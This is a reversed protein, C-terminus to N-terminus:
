FNYISHFKCTDQKKNIKEVKGGGPEKTMKASILKKLLKRRKLIVKLNSMQQNLEQPGRIAFMENMGAVLHLMLFPAAVTFVSKIQAKWRSYNSFFYSLNAMGVFLMKLFSYKQVQEFDEPMKNEESNDVSQDKSSHPNLQPNLQPNLNCRFREHKNRGYVQNFEAQCYQCVHKGKAQQFKKIFNTVSM